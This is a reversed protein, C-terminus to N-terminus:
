LYHRWLDNFVFFDKGQSRYRQSELQNPSSFYLGESINPIREQVIGNGIEKVISAIMYSGHKIAKLYLIHLTDREMIPFECQGLISGSDYKDAMRHITVGAVTENYYHAWFLGMLGRYKPILSSHVNLACDVLKLTDQSYKEGVGISILVSINRERIVESLNESNVSDIVLYPIYQDKCLKKINYSRNFPVLVECLSCIRTILILITFYLFQRIGYIKFRRVIQSRLSVRNFPNVCCIAVPMKTLDIKMYALIKQLYLPGYLTDEPIIFIVNM